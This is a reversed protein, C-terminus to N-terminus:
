EPRLPGAAVLEAVREVPTQPPVWENWWDAGAAALSAIYRREAALDEQRRRGGIVVAFGRGGDPRSSALERLRRVDDPTMDVWAPPKARYLCSGDWRLARERPRRRTFQGGVWIPISKQVPKDLLRMGATALVYLPTEKHKAKPIHEAAFHLLPSLYQSANSPNSACSSLGPTISLSADKGLQDHLM